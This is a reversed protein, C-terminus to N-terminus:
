GLYSVETERRVFNQIPFEGCNALLGARLGKPVVGRRLLYQVQFTAQFICPLTTM